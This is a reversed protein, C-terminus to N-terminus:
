DPGTQQETACTSACEDLTQWQGDRLVELPRFCAKYDMKPHGEIWYGLYLHPLKRERCFEIQRLIALTGPSRHALEPEYFTYVASLGQPGIDSVAAAVLRSAERIELYRTRSWPSLLFRRFDEPQPEDMGGGPHRWGIYREYLSFHEESFDAVRWQTQLDANRQLIRRQSRSPRFRAVEVRCPV